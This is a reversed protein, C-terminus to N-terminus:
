PEGAKGGGGALRGCDDESGGGRQDAGSDVQAPEADVGTAAVVEAYRYGREAPVRDSRGLESGRSCEAPMPPSAPPIRPLTLISRFCSLLQLIVTGSSSTDALRGVM